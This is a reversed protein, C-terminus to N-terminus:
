PMAMPTLLQRLNQRRLGIMDFRERQLGLIWIWIMGRKKLEWDRVSSM